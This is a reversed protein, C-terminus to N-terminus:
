NFYTQVQYVGGGIYEIEPANVTLSSYRSRSNHMLLLCPKWGTTRGLTYRKVNGALDKFTFREGIKLSSYKLDINTYDIVRLTGSCLVGDIDRVHCGQEKEYWTKRFCKDCVTKYETETKM